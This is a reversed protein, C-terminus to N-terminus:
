NMRQRIYQYRWDLKYVEDYKDLKESNWHFKNSVASYETILKLLDSEETNLLNVNKLKREQIMIVLINFIKKLEDVIKSTLHLNKMDLAIAIDNKDYILTLLYRIQKFVQIAQEENLDSKYAEILINM